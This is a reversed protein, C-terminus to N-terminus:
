LKGLILRRALYKLNLLEPTPYKQKFGNLKQKEMFEVFM